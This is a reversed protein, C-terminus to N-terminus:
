KPVMVLVDSPFCDEVSDYELAHWPNGDEDLRYVKWIRWAYGPGDRGDELCECTDDGHLCEPYEGNPTEAPPAGLSVTIGYEEDGDPGDLNDLVWKRVRPYFAVLAALQALRWPDDTTVVYDPHLTDVGDNGDGVSVGYRPLVADNSDGGAEDLNTVSLRNFGRSRLLSRERDAETKKM